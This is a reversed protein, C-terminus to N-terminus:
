GTPGRSQLFDILLRNVRSPEEHQVWHTAEEIMELRGDDCLALSERALGRGLFRDRAGWILLAPVRVRPDAPSMPPTRVAARYWDIMARFAEPESWARRYEALDAAGFTGPRSTGVLADAAAKWNARRFLVEPLKPVQFFALYWSRLMQSPDTLLHKRMVVPHPANLVALGRLRDPRTVAAWWAVVGGWDHGVM